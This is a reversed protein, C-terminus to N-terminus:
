EARRGARTLWSALFLAAIVFAPGAIVAMWSGRPWAMVVYLLGAAGYVAAGVWEWRWALVLIGALVFSPILHICLGALTRWFGQGEGLVDLAFMSLFLIFAISLARPAWYVVARPTDSMAGGPGFDM